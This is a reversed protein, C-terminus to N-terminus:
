EPKEEALYAVVADFTARHAADIHCREIASAAQQGIARASRRDHAAAIGSLLRGARAFCRRVTESAGAIVAGAALAAGTMAGNRGAIAELVGRAVIRTAVLRRQPKVADDALTRFAVAYLADGANLSQGLGWRAQAGDHALEAHMQMSREFLSISAAVPVAAHADGGCAGCAWLVLSPQLLEEERESALRERLIEGAVSEFPLAIKRLYEAVLARHESWPRQRKPLLAM